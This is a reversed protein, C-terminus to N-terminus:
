VEPVGKPPSMFESDRRSSVIRTLSSEGICDTHHSVIKWGNKPSVFCWWWDHGMALCCLTHQSVCYKRIFVIYDLLMMQFISEYIIVDVVGLMMWICIFYSYLGATHCGIYHMRCPQSARAIEPLRNQCHQGKEM